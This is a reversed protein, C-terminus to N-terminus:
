VDASALQMPDAQVLGVVIFPTAQVGTVIALEARPLCWPTLSCTTVTCHEAPCLQEGHWIVQSGAVDVNEGTTLHSASQLTGVTCPAESSPVPHVSPEVAVTPVVHRHTLSSPWVQVPIPITVHAAPTARVGGLQTSFRHSGKGKVAPIIAPGVSISESGQWAFWTSPCRVSVSHVSCHSLEAPYELLVPFSDQLVADVVATDESM